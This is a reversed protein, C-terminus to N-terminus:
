TAQFPNKPISSEDTQSHCSYFVNCVQTYYILLILNTEIPKIKDEHFSNYIFYFVYITVLVCTKLPGIFLRFVFARVFCFDHLLHQRFINKYELFIKSTEDM